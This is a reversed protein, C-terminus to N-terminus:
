DIQQSQNDRLTLFNLLQFPNKIFNKVVYVKQLCIHDDPLAIKFIHM